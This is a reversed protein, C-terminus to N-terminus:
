QQHQKHNQKHNKKFTQWPVFRAGDVRTHAVGDTNANDCSSLAHVVDTGNEHADSLQGFSGCRQAVNGQNAQITANHASTVRADADAINHEASVSNHVKSAHAEDDTAHSSADDHRLKRDFKACQDFESIFGAADSGM